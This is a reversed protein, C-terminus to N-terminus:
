LYYRRFRAWREQQQHCFVLRVTGDESLLLVNSLHRSWTDSGVTQEDEYRKDHCHLSRQFGFEATKDEGKGHVRDGDILPHRERTDEM